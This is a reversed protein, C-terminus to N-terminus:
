AWPDDNAPGAAAWPDDNASQSPAQQSQGGWSDNQQNGNQYGGGQQGGGKRPNKRVEATAYKLSPAVHDVEVEIVKRQEGERTEFSRTVLEGHVVVAMGKRLTEASNEAQERWVTCKLWTTEGDRWQGAQRDYTRPTSAVTFNAVPTGNGTFRLEPDGALNGPLVVQIRDGAM